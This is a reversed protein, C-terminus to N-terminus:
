PIELSHIYSIHKSPTKGPNIKIYFFNTKCYDIKPVPKIKWHRLTLRCYISKLVMNNISGNIVPESDKMKRGTDQKEVM